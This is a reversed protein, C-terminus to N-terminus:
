DVPREIYISRSCSTSSSTTMRLKKLPASAISYPHTVPGFEQRGADDLEPVPHAKGNSDLVVQTLRCHDQRLALYQGAKYTPFHNGPKPILRFTALLPSLSKWGVVTGARWEAM